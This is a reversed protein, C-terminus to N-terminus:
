AVAVALLQADWFSLPYSGCPEYDDLCFGDEDFTTYDSQWDCDDDTRVVPAFSAPRYTRLVIM